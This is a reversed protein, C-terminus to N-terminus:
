ETIIKSFNIQVPGILGSSILPDGKKYFEYTTFTTRKSAPMPLNKIYWDPMNPNNISYGDTRPFREDGILKNTWLNTVQIELQNTGTKVFKTIDIKYPQSWLVGLDVGNIIVRAAVSVKGLDLEIKLDSKILSKDIDIEKKYSATGSFYKIEDKESDKWDILTAFSEHHPQSVESKFDSRGIATM